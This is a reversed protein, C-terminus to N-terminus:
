AAATTSRTIGLVHGMKEQKTRLYGLNECRPKTLLSLREVIRLPYGELADFKAPNNSMVRITTLGLDVLIQAGVDYSRGDAPLGLDLNAEVTDRGGDQLAYARFKQLLGIGRGEHNRLYLLVGSGEAEIRSLAEELQDGCDCRLSGFIDGTACESHVRVLVNQQGRVEGKVLAIHEIGDLISRYVHGVFYGHRTPMRAEAEHKVLREHRRRYAVLDAITVFVLNHREAFDVLQPGRAMSGDDNVIECLIGAPRLGALRALDTAAETHGPRVLVGGQRSCLPFVHGPRGFAEASVAPDALARITASRDAASIGTTTGERLDVSVTFATRHSETNEAVMPPLHLEALREATLPACILGSTHRILFALASPTAKEAALILDGENERDVGDAVVVMEGRAIAAIAKEVASGNM